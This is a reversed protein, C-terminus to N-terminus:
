ASWLSSVLLFSVYTDVIAHNYARLVGPLDAKSVVSRVATAGAGIIMEPNVGPADRPLASRLGSTFITEAAALFVTGGLYQFFFVQSTAMAQEKLPLFGQIATIPQL